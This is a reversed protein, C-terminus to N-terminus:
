DTPKDDFVTSGIRAYLDPRAKRLYLAVAISGFLLTLLIYPIMKFFLSESATGAAASMNSAMLYIVYVM